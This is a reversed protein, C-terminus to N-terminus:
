APSAGLARTMLAVLEAQRSTGTKEFIRVLHARVTYFSLGLAEATQRPSRGELLSAAIKAQGGTLGFLEGLFAESVSAAAEPDTVCVIVSPGVHFPLVGEGRTPAVIVSLPAREGARRLAMSGGARAGNMGAAQAIRAGLRRADDSHPPTLRGSFVRLGGPQALMREAVANAHSIRGDAGLVFLGYPARDLAAALGAGLTRTEAVKRGLRMARIVHGHIAEAKDVDAQEYAPRKPSRYLDVAAFNTGQAWLGWTLVSHIGGPKLFDVYFETEMLQSKPMTHEDVTVIPVWTKMRERLNDVRRLVNTNAYHDFYAPPVTPDLGMVLGAGAGNELNEQMISGATAGFSDALLQLLRPWDAPDLALDYISEVLGGLNGLGDDM